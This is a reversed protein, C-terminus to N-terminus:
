KILVIKRIQMFSGAEFKYFYIGSAFNSANFRVNYSGPTKFENVLTSIERGQMDYVKLKVFEAQPLDFSITTVPNFPNPYNSLSFKQPIDNSTTGSFGPRGEEEPDFPEPPCTLCIISAYGIIDSNISEKYSEDVTTVLYRLNPTAAPTIPSSTTDLEEIEDIYYDNTTSDWLSWTWNTYAGRKYIRYKLFDRDGRNFLLLKPHFTGHDDEHSRFLYAPAPPPNTESANVRWINEINFNFLVNDPFASFILALGGTNYLDAVMSKAGYLIKMPVPSENYYISSPTDEFYDGSKTNLFIEITSQRNIVLDNWGDKNFDAASVAFTFNDYEYGPTFGTGSNNIYVRLGDDISIHHILIDNYGDNNIDAIKFEANEFGTYISIWPELINSNTNKLIVLSDEVTYVLEDKNNMLNNIISYPPISSSIQGLQIQYPSFLKYRYPITDLKGNSLGKYIKATDGSNSFVLVDEYTDNSFQGVGKILGNVSFNKVISGISGGSNINIELQGNGRTVVADKRGTSDNLKFVFGNITKNDNELYIFRNGTVENNFNSNDENMYWNGNIFNDADEYHTVGVGIDLRNNSNNIETIDWYVRRNTEITENPFFAPVKQGDTLYTQAKLVNFPLFIMLALFLLINAKSFYNTKPYYKNNIKM